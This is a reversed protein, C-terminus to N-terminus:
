TEDKKVQYEILAGMPAYVKGAFVADRGTQGGSVFLPIDDIGGYVEMNPRQVNVYLRYYGPSFFYAPFTAKVRYLGPEFNSLLGSHDAGTSVHLMVGKYYVVISPTAATVVEPVRFVYEVTFPSGGKISGDTREGDQTFCVSLVSVHERGVSQTPTGITHVDKIYRQVMALPDGAAKISGSEFYVVRSAVARVSELDHSVFLVTRGESTVENMRRICREQFEIDGVALVEDVFLIDSPLFAAVAFGLRVFMGSSYHKVPTDIFREVGAFSVIEDFRMAVESRTMGLLIGSFYINERGTLEPHFGTGVGLLSAVSGRICIDGSTPPTIGALVKLLTTKGAGNRGIIGVVEGPLVRLTVDNLAYFTDPSRFTALPNKIISSFTDRLTKYREKLLLPYKKSVHRIDLAYSM